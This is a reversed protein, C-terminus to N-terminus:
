YTDPTRQGVSRGLGKGFQRLRLAFLQQGSIVIGDPTDPVVQSPGADLAAIKGAPAIGIGALVVAQQLGEAHGMVLLVAYGEDLLRYRRGAAFQPEEYAGPAGGCPHLIIM